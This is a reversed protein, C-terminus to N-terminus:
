KYFGEVLWGVLVFLLVIRFEVGFSVSLLISSNLSLGSVKVGIELGCDDPRVKFGKSVHSVGVFPCVLELDLFHFFVLAKFRFSGKPGVGEM